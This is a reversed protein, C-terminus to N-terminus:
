LMADWKVDIPNIIDGCIEIQGKYMGFLTKQTPECPLIRTFPVGNKLLMLPEGIQNVQELFLLPASQFENLSLTKVM